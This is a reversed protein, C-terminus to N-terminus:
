EASSIFAELRDLGKKINDMSAAYTFRVFDPAGFGCCSVVAVLGKELFALSFDDADKILRGGLTKGKLGSINLMVYFAGDPSICSVGKMANIRSVIYDRREQFVDRMADIGEQPGNLAEVAALQSITSPASTSHSLYNSMVTALKKSSATFGIRWGTMAYSKSVGNVIITRDKVDEGLSAVSDFPKNDYVLRYNVEDAIIYLDHRVCDDTL